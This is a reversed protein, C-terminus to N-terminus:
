RITYTVEKYVIKNDQWHIVTKGYGTKPKDIEKLKGNDSEYLTNDKLKNENM